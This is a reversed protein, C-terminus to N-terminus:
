LKIKKGGGFQKAAKSHKKNKSKENKSTSKISFGANVANNEIEEQKEKAEAAAKEKALREEEAKKAAAAKEKAM